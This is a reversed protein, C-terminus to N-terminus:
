KFMPENFIVNWGLLPQWGNNTLVELDSAPVATFTVYEAGKNNRIRPSLTFRKDLKARLVVMKDAGVKIKAFSKAYDLDGTFSISPQVEGTKNLNM